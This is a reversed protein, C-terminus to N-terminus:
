PQSVAYFALYGHAVYRLNPSKEDYDLKDNDGELNRTKYAKLAIRVGPQQSGSAM